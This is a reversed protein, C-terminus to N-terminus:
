GVGFLHTRHCAVPNPTAALPAQGLAKAVDRPHLNKWSDLLPLFWEQDQLCILEYVEYLNLNLGYDTIAYYGNPGRQSTLIGAHVLYQLNQENKRRPDGLNAALAYSNAGDKGRRNYFDIIRCITIFKATIM